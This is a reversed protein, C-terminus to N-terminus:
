GQIGASGGPGQALVATDDIKRRSGGTERLHREMGVRGIGDAVERGAPVPQIQFLVVEVPVDAVGPPGLGGPAAIKAGPVTSRGLKDVM